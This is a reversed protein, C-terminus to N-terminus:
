TRSTRRTRSRRGRAGARRARRPRHRPAEPRAHLRGGRGLVAPLQLPALLAEDGAPRPQRGEHGDPHHRARRQLPDADRRPHVAGLRARAARHRGRDRDAPDRGPRPRRPAEQRRRDRKRITDKELKRSPPRSRPAVSATPRARRGDAPAYQALSRRRSRTSRTRASSSTRSRRRRTSSARRALRQIQELLGEDIQPAEVEIKEKGAKERLEEMAAVLKKIEGHAIDLADLIEAETVGDAGAEVM